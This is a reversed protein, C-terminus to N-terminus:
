SRHEKLQNFIDSFVEKFIISYCNYEKEFIIFKPYVNNCYEIEILLSEEEEKSQSTKWDLIFAQKYLLRFFYNFMATFDIKPDTTTKIKGDYYTATLFAKDNDKKIEVEYTKNEKDMYRFYFKSINNICEDIKKGDDVGFDCGCCHCEFGHTKYISDSFPLTDSSGCKPCIVDNM